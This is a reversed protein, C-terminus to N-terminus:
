VDEFEVGLLKVLDLAQAPSIRAGRLEFSACDRLRIGRIDCDALSIGQLRTGFFEATSLDCASFATQEFRCESLVASRLICEECRVRRFRAAAFGVFEGRCRALVASGFVTEAFEAGTFKCDVFQVRQFASGRLDANSVDCNRSLVDSFRAQALGTSASLSWPTSVM